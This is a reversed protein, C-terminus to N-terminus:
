SSTAPATSTVHPCQGVGDVERPDDPARGDCECASRRVPRLEALRPFHTYAARVTLLAATAALVVVLDVLVDRARAHHEVFLMAIAVAPPHLAGLSSMSVLVLAAVVGLRLPLPLEAITGEVLLAGGGAILYGAFIAPPRSVAATPLAIVLVATLALPVLLLREPVNQLVTALTAVAAALVLGRLLQVAGARM